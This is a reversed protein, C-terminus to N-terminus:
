YLTKMWDEPEDIKSTDMFPTTAIKRYYDVNVKKTYRMLADFLQFPTYTLIVNIDIGLAVSVVSAYTGYMSQDTDDNQHKQQQRKKIGAKIKEAIERAKDNVPNYEHEKDESIIPIFLDAVTEKFEEFTFATIRGKLEEEQYFNIESMTFKIDFDPFILNFFKRLIRSANPDENATVLFLQFDSLEDLDHSGGRIANGLESLNVIINLAMLFDDEGYILIDKLTPQVIFVNSEKLEIPAGTIYLGSKIGKIGM